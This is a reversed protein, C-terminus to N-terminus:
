FLWKLGAQIDYDKTYSHGGSRELHAYLLMDATLLRDFGFGYYIGTGLLRDSFTTNNVTISQKGLFEHNVGFQIFWEGTRQGNSLMHQGIVTGIRGTLSNFNHEDVKMGNSMSYSDGSIHYGSLQIQPEIFWTKADTLFIKRGFEASVGAGNNDKSGTVPTTNLMRTYLKSSYRDLAAIFEGYYGGSGRWLAYFDAGFASASGTGRFRTAASRQRIDYYHVDAGFLWASGPKDMDIGLNFRSSRQRIATQGAGQLHHQSHGATSWIGASHAGPRGSTASMLIDSEYDQYTLPNSRPSGTAEFRRSFRTLPDSDSLAQEADIDKLTNLRKHVESLQMQFLVNPASMSSLSLVAEATPSFVPSHATQQPAATGTEAPGTDGSANQSGGPPTTDTSSDQSAQNNSTLGKKPVSEARVLYWEKGNDTVRPTEALQYVYLGLDVYAGEATEALRFTNDPVDPNEVRALYSHAQTDAPTVGPELGGTKVHLVFNGSASETVHISDSHDAGQALLTRLFFNGSGELTKVELRVPSATDSLSGDTSAFLQQTNQWGEASSGIYVNGGNLKLHTVTSTADALYLAPNSTLVEWRAGNAFSLQIESNADTDTFGKFYQEAGSFDARIFAGGASANEDRHALMDGEIVAAQPAVIRAHQGPENSDDIAYFAYSQGTGHINKLTLPGNFLAEGPYVQVGAALAGDSDASMDAFEASTSFVAKAGYLTLAAAEAYEGASSSVGSVSVPGNFLLAAEGASDQAFLAYSLAVGNDARLALHDISVSADSRLLSGSAVGGVTQGGISSIGRLTNESFNQSTNTLVVNSIQTQSAIEISSLPGEASLVDLTTGATSGTSSLNAISLQTNTGATGLRIVSPLDRSPMASGDDLFGSSAQIVPIYQRGATNVDWSSKPIVFDKEFNLEAGRSRAASAWLTVNRTTNAANHMEVDVNDKFHVVTNGSFVNIAQVDRSRSNVTFALNGNVTVTGGPDEPYVNSSGNYIDVPAFSYNTYQIRLERSPNEVSVTLNQHASLYLDILQSDTWSTETISYNGGSEITGQASAALPVATAMCLLAAAVASSLQKESVTKQVNLM